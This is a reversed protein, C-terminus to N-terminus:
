HIFSHVNTYYKIGILYKHGMKRAKETHLVNEFEETSDTGAVDTLVDPGGPHDMQFETMDYVGGYILAWPAEETNHVEVEAKTYIRKNFLSRLREVEEDTKPKDDVSQSAM